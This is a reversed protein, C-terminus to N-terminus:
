LRNVCKKQAIRFSKKRLIRQGLLLGGTFLMQMAYKGIGDGTPPNTPDAYANDAYPWDSLLTVEDCDRVGLVAIGDERIQLIGAARVKRGARVRRALDNVGASGSRITSGISVTAYRGQGDTLLFETLIEGEKEVSVVEGELQVLQGGHFSNDMVLRYGGTVPQWRHWVEPLLTLKTVELVPNRGDSGLIGVIEVAAGTQLTQEVGSLAIGGTEDQVYLVDPFTTNPNANGATLYGRIRYARGAGGQRVRSIATLSLQEEKAGLLKEAFTRNAYPEKWISGPEKLFADALFNSGCVLLEGGGSHRQWALAETGGEGGDGDGDRSVAWKGGKVLWTGGEVTCGMDLRFVRDKLAPAYWHSESHYRALVVDTEQGMNEVPDRLTDDKLRLESGVAALLRNLERSSHLNGDLSDGQGCVALSGGLSCFEAAYELFAQSFPVAPATVVLLADGNQHIEEWNEVFATKQGCSEALATFEGLSELGANGHAADILVGGSAKAPHVTLTLAKEYSRPYEGLLATVAATLEAQGPHPCRCSFVYDKRQGPEIWLTEGTSHLIEEELTVIIERIRLPEAEENFFTLVLETERNQTVRDTGASFAEIGARETQDIWIPATVVRDGDSQTLRLFCWSFDPELTFSVAGSTGEMSCGAVVSGDAVLELTTSGSDTPDQFEARITVTDGVQRRELRTGMPDDNLRFSLVADEEETILFRGQGLEELAAEKTLAEARIAVPKGCPIALYGEELATIYATVWDQHPEPICSLAEAETLIGLFGDGTVAETNQGMVVCFDMGQDRASRLLPEPRGEPYILGFFLSGDERAAAPRPLVSALLYLLFALIILISNRNKRM